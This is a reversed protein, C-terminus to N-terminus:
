RQLFDPSMLILAVLTRLGSQWYHPWEDRSLDIAQDLGWPTGDYSDSYTLMQAARTIQAADPEYGLARAFWFRALNRPTHNAPDSM